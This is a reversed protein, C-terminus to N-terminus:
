VQEEMGRVGMAARGAIQGSDNISQAVSGVSGPPAITTYIYTTM